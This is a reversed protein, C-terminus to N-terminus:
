KNMIIVQWFYCGRLKEIRNQSIIVIENQEISSELCDMDGNYNKTIRVKLVM